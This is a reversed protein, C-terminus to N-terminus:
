NKILSNLNKVFYEKPLKSKEWDIIDSNVNLIVNADVHLNTIFQSAFKLQNITLEYDDIERPFIHITLHVKKM